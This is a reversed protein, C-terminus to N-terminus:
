TQFDERPYAFCRRTARTIWRFIARRAEARTTFKEPDYHIVLLVPVAM